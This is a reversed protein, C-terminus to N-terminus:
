KEGAANARKGVTVGKNNNEAMNRIKRPVKKIKETRM